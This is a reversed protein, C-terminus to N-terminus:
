RRSQLVPPTLTLPMTTSANIVSATQDPTLTLSKDTLSSAKMTIRKFRESMTLSQGHADKADASALLLYDSATSTDNASRAAIAGLYYLTCGVYHQDAQSRNVALVYFSHASVGRTIGLLAAPPNGNAIAGASATLLDCRTKWADNNMPLQQAHIASAGAFLVALASLRRLTASLNIM